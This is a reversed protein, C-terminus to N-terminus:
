FILIIRRQSKNSELSCDRFINERKSTKKTNGLSKHVIQEIRERKFGFQALTKIPKRIGKKILLMFRQNKENSM